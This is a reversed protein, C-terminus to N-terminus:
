AVDVGTSQAARGYGLLSLAPLLRPSLSLLPAVETREAARRLVIAGRGRSTGSGQQSPPLVTLCLGIPLPSADISFARTMRLARAKAPIM